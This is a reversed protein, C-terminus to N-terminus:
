PYRLTGPRANPDLRRVEVDIEHATVHHVVRERRGSLPMRRTPAPTVRGQPYASRNKM